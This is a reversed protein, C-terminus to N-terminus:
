NHSGPFTTKGVLADIKQGILNLYKDRSRIGGDLYGDCYCVAQLFESVVRNGDVVANKFSIAYQGNSMLIVEAGPVLAALAEAQYKMM